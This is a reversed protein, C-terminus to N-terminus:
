TKAESMTLKRSLHYDKFVYLSILSLSLTCSCSISFKSGEFHSSLNGEQLPRLTHLSCEKAFVGVWVCVSVCVCVCVRVVWDFLLIVELLQSYLKIALDLFMWKNSYKRWKGCKQRKVMKFTEYKNFVNVWFRTRFLIFVIEIYKALMYFCFVSRVAWDFVLKSEM